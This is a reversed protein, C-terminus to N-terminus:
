NLVAKIYKPVVKCVQLSNKEAVVIKGNLNHIAHRGDTITISLEGAKFIENVNLNALEKKTVMM